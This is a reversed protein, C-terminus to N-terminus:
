KRKQNLVTKARAIQKKHQTIEHPKKVYREESADMRIKLIKRQCEEILSSLKVSDLKQLEESKMNM